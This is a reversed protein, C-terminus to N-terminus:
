GSVAERVPTAVAWAADLPSTHVADGVHRLVTGLGDLELRHAGPPTRVGTARAGLVSVADLVRGNGLVGVRPRGGDVFLDEAVLPVGGVTARFRQRLVGGREAVRGLVLTERLVAVGGESLRVTVSREVDAGTAVVFPEARWVLRASPGVEVEVRWRATGGRMDYAVTGAPEVVELVLGPGVRMGLGIDDGAVLLGGEAVLAIRVRDPAASLVRAGIHGRGRPGDSGVRVCPRGGAPDRDATVWTRSM